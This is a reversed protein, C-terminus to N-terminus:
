SRSDSMFGFWVMVRSSTDRDSGRKFVIGFKFVIRVDSGSGESLGLLTLYLLSFSGIIVSPQIDILGM